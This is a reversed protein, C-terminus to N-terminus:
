DGDRRHHQWVRGCSRVVCLQAPGACCGARNVGSRVGPLRARGHRSEAFGIAALLRPSLDQRDAAAVYVRAMREPPHVGAVAPGPADAAVALAILLLATRM